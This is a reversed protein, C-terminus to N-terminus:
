PPLSARSVPVWRLQETLEAVTAEWRSSVYQALVLEHGPGTDSVLVNGQCASSMGGVTTGRDVVTVDWSGVSLARAAGIIGASFIIKDNAM